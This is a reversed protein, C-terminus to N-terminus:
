LLSSGQLAVEEAAAGPVEIVLTARHEGRRTPAFKVVLECSRGRALPEDTCGRDDVSFETAGEGDLDTSAVQLNGNGTNRVTVRREDGGLADFRVADPTVTFRAEDATAPAPSGGSLTTTTTSPRSPSDGDGLWGLQTGAGILAAAATAVGAAGTILGATTSWFGKRSAM